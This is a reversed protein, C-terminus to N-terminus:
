LDAGKQLWTHTEASAYIRLRRAAPDRLGGARVDWAAAQARAAFLGVMNAMNGGSVLLGGSPPGYGVLDAIWRVTQAEIESAIPALRWSGVNPNVAAALLDALMGIPAPSSTIYGMFRPHGNLLSHDFLLRAVEGVLQDPATGHDPL